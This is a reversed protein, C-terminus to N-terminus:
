PYVPVMQDKQFVFRRKVIKLPSSVYINLNGFVYEGREVPRVTYKLEQKGNKLLSTRYNFDRKQFQQPLEDILSIFARFPYFSQFEVSIPNFDSNSLKQPLVRRAEIGKSKTYLLYIDFLFLGALMLTLLWAIPYLFPLWFSLIFCASLVAIYWFFTNHIYFSKLFQM